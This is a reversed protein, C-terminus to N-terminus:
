ARQGELRAIVQDVQSEDGSPIGVVVQRLGGSGLGGARSVSLM